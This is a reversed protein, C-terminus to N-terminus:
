ESRLSNVPNSLAAKITQYSVTIVSILISLLAISGFMWWTLDVRYPYDELWNSMSWWAVPTAIAISILVLKLFEKSLLITISVVTAGLVKRVGIEKVRGEIVYATLAFLGLCSIVIAVTSALTALTGIREEHGFRAQYIIDAFYHVFPYEPDFKLLIDRIKALNDSVERNKNLRFTLTGYWNKPGPGQVVMPHATGYPGLLFNNFVGVVHWTGEQSELQQGVPQTLGMEKVAEENLLIATSDSPNNFVDMDRGQIIKVGMTETFNWDAHYKILRVQESPEKGEWNYSNDWNWPYVVPSNTRTVSTIAGSSLLEDRVLQYHKPIEGKLYVFAMNELSLGTDRSQGHQIQRYIVLTCSILFIAFGFQVIVLMKRPAILSRSFRYVGKLVNVPKYSSLYLSPYIGALIGTTLVLGALILWFYLNSFPISLDVFNIENFWPLCLQVLLVAIIAAVFSILLSEGMFRGVLSVKRAGVVKCIGIERGRTVSRATSLNMYNICAILLILGGILGFKRGIEIGGGAIKGNEFRSWLHWKPMPHLFIENKMGAHKQVVDKFRNNAMAESVGEKLLLYTNVSYKQWDNEEWGVEKTHSWPILYEFNFRTNDPIDKTVGTVIFLATSDVRVTKNLAEEDGFLKKALTETIVIARPSNLATKPDGAILPFSFIELFDPDTLYGHTELHKENTHLVFAGVWNVRAIKEIEPYNLEMVPALVHPTGDWCEIQGEVEARNYVSYIRDKKEHFQDVSVENMIWLLILISSGMGIALGMVNISSFVKNRLLYRWSIKFNNNILMYIPSNVPKNKRLAFPRLYNFVQYWYNLIARFSRGSKALSYFKENLDGLV